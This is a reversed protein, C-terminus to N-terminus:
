IGNRIQLKHIICVNKIVCFCQLVVVSTLLIIAPTQQLPFSILGQQAGGVQQPVLQAESHM